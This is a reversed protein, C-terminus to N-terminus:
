CPRAWPTAEQTGVTDDRLPGYVASVSWCLPDVSAVERTREGFVGFFIPCNNLPRLMWVHASWDSTYLSFNSHNDDNTENESSERLTYVLFAEVHNAHLFRQRSKSSFLSGM